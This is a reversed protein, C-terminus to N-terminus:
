AILIIELATLHSGGDIKEDCDEPPFSALLGVLLCDIRSSLMRFASVSRPTDRRSKKFNQVVMAAVRANGEERTGRIASASSFCTL